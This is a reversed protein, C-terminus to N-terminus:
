SRSCVCMSPAPASVRATLECLCAFSRMTNSAFFHYLSMNLVKHKQGSLSSSHAGSWTETMPSTSKALHGEVISTITPIRASCRHFCRTCIPCSRGDNYLSGVKAQYMFILVRVLRVRSIYRHACSKTCIIITTPGPTGGPLGRDWRNYLVM